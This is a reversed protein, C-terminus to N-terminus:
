QCGEKVIRIADTATIARSSQGTCGNTFGDQCVTMSVTATTAGAPFMNAATEFHCTLDPYGDPLGGGPSGSDSISCQYRATKGVTNVTAGGLTLLSPDVIRVDFNASGWITVPVTGQSCVNISDGVPKVSVMTCANAQSPDPGYLTVNDLLMGHTDSTGGAVFELNALGFTGKPTATGLQWSSVLAQHSALVQDAWRVTISQSSLGTDPRSRWYYSLAYNAGPCTAIPQSIQVNADSDFEVYQHGDQPGVSNLYESSPTDRWFELKANQGTGVYVVKWEMGAMPYQAYCWWSDTVGGLTTGCPAWYSQWAYPFEFSGNKVLNPQGQAVVVALLLVVCSFIVRKM